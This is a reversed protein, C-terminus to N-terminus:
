RRAQAARTICEFGIGYTEFGSRKCIDVLGKVNTSAFLLEIGLTDAEKLLAACLSELALYRRRAPAAPDTVIGDLYGVLPANTAYVFGVACRDVVYGTSPYLRADGANAAQGRASLWEGLIALHRAPDWREVRM